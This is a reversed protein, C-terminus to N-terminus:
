LYETNKFLWFFLNWSFNYNGMGPGKNFIKIKKDKINIKNKKDYTLIDVDFGKKQLMISSDIIAHAPGGWKPDLTQIIRLIKLNNKM